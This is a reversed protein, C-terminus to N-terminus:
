NKPFACDELDPRRCHQEFEDPSKSSLQAGTRETCTPRKKMDRWREHGLFPPLAPSGQCKWLNQSPVELYKWTSLGDQVMVLSAATSCAAPIGTAVEVTAVWTSGWCSVGTVGSDGRVGRVGWARRPCRGRCRASVTSSLGSNSPARGRM